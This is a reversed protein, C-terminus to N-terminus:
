KKFCNIEHTHFNSHPNTGEVSALLVEAAVADDVHFIGHGDEFGVLSLLFSLEGKIIGEPGKILEDFFFVAVHFGSAGLIGVLFCDELFDAGFDEVVCLFAIM